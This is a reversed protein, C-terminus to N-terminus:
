ERTATKTKTTTDPSITNDQLISCSQLGGTGQPLSHCASSPHPATLSFSDIIVCPCPHLFCSLFHRHTHKLKALLSFSLSLPFPCLSDAPLQPRGRSGRSIRQMRSILAQTAGLNASCLPPPPPYDPDRCGDSAVERKWAGTGGERGPPGSSTVGRSGNM